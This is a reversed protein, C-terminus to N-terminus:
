THNHARESSPADCRVWVANGDEYHEKKWIPLRAKVQDIIYRCAQFSEERHGAIVGVWVAMEGITLKGQRHYCRAAIVDFQENVEHFIKQAEKRCLSEYAQYELAVVKKGENHDRVWGEFCNFAGAQSSRLGQRLDISELPISSLKFMNKLDLLNDQSHRKQHQM